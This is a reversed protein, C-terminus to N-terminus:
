RSLENVWRAWRATAQARARPSRRATHMLPPAALRTPDVRDRSLGVRHPGDRHRDIRRRGPQAGIGHHGQLDIQGVRVLHSHERRRPRVSAVVVTSGLCQTVDGSRVRETESDVVLGHGYRGATDAVIIPPGLGYGASRPRCLSSERNGRGRTVPRDAVPRNGSTTARGRPRGGLDAGSSQPLILVHCRRSGDPRDLLQALDISGRGLAREVLHDVSEILVAANEDRVGREQNDRCRVAVTSAVNRWLAARGSEHLDHVIM